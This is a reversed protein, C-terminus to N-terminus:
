RAECFSFFDVIAQREADTEARMLQSEDWVWMEGSAAFAQLAADDTPLNAVAYIGDDIM